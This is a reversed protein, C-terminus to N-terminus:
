REEETRSDLRQAVHTDSAQRSIEESRITALNGGRSRVVKGGILGRLESCNDVTATRAMRNRRVPRHFLSGSRPQMRLGLNSSQHRLLDGSSTGNGESDDSYNNYDMEFEASRTSQLKQSFPSPSLTLSPVSMSKSATTYTESSAPSIAEQADMISPISM